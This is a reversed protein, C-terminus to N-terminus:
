TRAEWLEYMRRLRAGQRKLEAVIACDRCPSVLDAIIRGREAYSERLAALADLVARLDAQATLCLVDHGWSQAYSVNEALRAEAPTMM